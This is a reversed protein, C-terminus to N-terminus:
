RLKNFEEDIEEKIKLAIEKNIKLVKRDYTFIGNVEDEVDSVQTYICACLSNKINPIIEDHYLNYYNTNLDLLNSFKKYGFEQDNYYHGDIKLAYGGFESM